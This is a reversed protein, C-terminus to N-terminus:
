VTELLILFIESVGNVAVVTEADKSPLSPRMFDDDGVVVWATVTQPNNLSDFADIYLHYRGAQLRLHGRLDTSSGGFQHRHYGFARTGVIM